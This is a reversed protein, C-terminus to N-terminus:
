GWLRKLRSRYLGGGREVEFIVDCESTCYQM